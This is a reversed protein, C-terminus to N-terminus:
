RTRGRGEAIQMPFRGIGRQVYGARFDLMSRREIAQSPAVPAVTEHGHAEMHAILWLLQM